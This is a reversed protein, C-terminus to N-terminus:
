YNKSEEIKQKPGKTTMKSQNTEINNHIKKMSNELGKVRLKPKKDIRRAFESTLLNRSPLENLTCHQLTGICMRLWKLEYQSIPWHPELSM